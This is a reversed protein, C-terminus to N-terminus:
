PMEWEVSQGSEIAEINELVDPDKIEAAKMLECILDHMKNVDDPSSQLLIDLIKAKMNTQFSKLSELTDAPVLAINKHGRRAIYVEDGAAAKSLIDSFNARAERTSLTTSM